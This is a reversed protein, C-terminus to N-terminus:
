PTPRDAELELLLDLSQTEALHELLELNRIVEEDEASRSSAAPPTGADAAGANQPSPSLFLLLLTLGTV